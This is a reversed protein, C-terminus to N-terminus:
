AAGTASGAASMTRLGPLRVTVRTGGGPAGTVIVTGGLQAARESMGRLGFSGAKGMDDAAIGRGNDEVTLNLMDDEVQLLTDVRTAAAHKTINTLTERFISFLASATDPDIDMEEATCNVHCPIDMRREFDGAAWEIAAALGLDLIGPRLDRGIRSTTRITDDVLEDLQRIKTGLAKDAAPVRGALWMLDIKIATLNGGIDDHIERAIRTREQEKVRELHSTLESLRRRSERIEQEALKSETIDTMIGEGRVAAGSVVTPSFRLNIWRIENDSRVRIRGEWHAGAQGAGADSICANLADHDAPDILDLFLRANDVLRDPPIGLLDESGESVYSFHWQDGADRALQFVVGPINSVIASLRTEHEVLRKEAAQRASRMEAERMERNIAPVLRSLNRKMVYDHAGGKMAAVAEDEGIHGSVIIFPIDIDRSKFLELAAIGSFQPLSYDAIVLDWPGDDLAAAMERADSVRQHQPAYGGRRLTLLLLDADDQSDEVLLLRLPRSM